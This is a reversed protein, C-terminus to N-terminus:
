PGPLVALARATRPGSPEIGWWFKAMTRSTLPPVRIEMALTATGGPGLAPVTACDLEHSRIVNEAKGGPGYFYLAEEYTPCPGLDVTTRTPNALTVSYRLVAGSAAQAPAHITATLTALSGAPPAPPAPAVGLASEAVGCTTDLVVPSLDVRLTGKGGPLVIEVGDFLHGVSSAVALASPQNLAQCADETGIVLRGAEGPRLDVPDVPGTLGEHAAPLTVLRGGSTIGLLQPYGSLRCTSTGVNTVVLPNFVSGSAATQGSDVARLDGATCAPAAAGVSVVAGSAGGCGGLVLPCAAVLAAAVGAAAGAARPRAM